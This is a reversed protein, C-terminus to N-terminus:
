EPFREALEYLPVTYNELDFSAVKLDPELLVLTPWGRINVYNVASYDPDALVPIVDSPFDNSWETATKKVAPSGDDQEGLITVWYVDGRAVAAPGAPWVTSLGMYDEEGGIWMAMAQCPGCWQASIDIIVPKDANYFDFLDVEDGYQDQFVVQAFRKGIEANGSLAGGKLEDKEFYYPWGGKYIVDNADAPDHNEHVEDRDTYGDEDTDIKEPDSGHEIEDGDNLGDGDTDPNLPDAGNAEEEADNLGDGDTDAALPDLGMAEEDKDSLGDGDSDKAGFICGATGLALWVVLQRSM